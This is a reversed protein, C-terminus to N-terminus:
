QKQMKTEPPTSQAFVQDGFQVRVHQREGDAMSGAVFVHYHQHVGHTQQGVTATYICMM